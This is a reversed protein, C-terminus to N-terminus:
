HNSGTSRTGSETEHSPNAHLTSFLQTAAQTIGLLHEALSARLTANEEDRLGVYINATTSILPSALALLPIMTTSSM